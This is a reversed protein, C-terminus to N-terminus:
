TVGEPAAAPQPAPGFSRGAIAAQDDFISEAEAVRPLPIRVPLAVQRPELTPAGRLIRDDFAELDFREVLPWADVAAYSFLLLPRPRPGANEASAHLTRVHHFSCSGARATLAVARDLAAGLAAPDIAGVFVGDHHHDHVPGRHSGPVVLLPGNEATCDELMIGVALLDDNTHPYFAWDQHWEVAAGGGPPKFNLKGHDFRVAPGVLDAVIDLLRPSRAAAAYVPDQDQPDKIRRVVPRGPGHGPGLDYVGDSAAVGRAAEVLGETVRRLVALEEAGFVEAVVLYGSERYFRIQDQHLM